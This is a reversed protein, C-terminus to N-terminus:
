SSYPNPVQPTEDTELFVQDFPLDNKEHATKILIEDKRKELEQHVLGVFKAWQEDDSPDTPPTPTPTTPPTPTPTSPYSPSYGPGMKHDVGFVAQGGALEKERQEAIEKIIKQNNGVVPPTGFTQWKGEKQTYKISQEILNFKWLHAGTLLKRVENFSMPDRFWVMGQMHLRDSKPCREEGASLYAIRKEGLASLIQSFSVRVFDTFGWGCALKPAPKYPKFRREYKAATQKQESM